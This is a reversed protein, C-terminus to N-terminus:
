LQMLDAAQTKHECCAHFNNPQWMQVLRNQASPDAPKQVYIYLDQSSVILTGRLHRYMICIDAHIHYMLFMYCLMPQQYVHLIDPYVM